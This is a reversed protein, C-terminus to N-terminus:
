NAPGSDFRQVLRRSQRKLFKKTSFLAKQAAAKANFLFSSYRSEFELQPDAYLPCYGFIECTQQFEDSKEIADAAKRNLYKRPLLKIKQANLGRSSGKSFNWDGNVNLSENYKLFQNSFPIALYRCIAKMELEPQSCFDEYKFLPVAHRQLERAYALIRSIQRPDHQRWSILVDMPNRIFAFPRVQCDAKILEYTSLQCASQNFNRVSYERVILFKGQQACKQALELIGAKYEESEIDIGYWIKAQQQVTRPADAAGGGGKPHVESLMVVDPLASLCRNLLTGGSRMWCM